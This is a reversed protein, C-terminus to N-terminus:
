SRTVRLVRFGKVSTQRTANWGQEILWRQLSDSGLNKGVVLKAVGDPTLRPLWTLLLDHLAAKGVRIPPNSWIEDFELNPPVLEPLMAHLHSAVGAHQANLETLEVARANTDVGYVIIEPSQVALACAIPGWGCGLDLISKAGRPPTSQDLLIQTAKDLGDRSFVGSSTTFEFDRDWIRARVTRRADPTSPNAQFYHSM